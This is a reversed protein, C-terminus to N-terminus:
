WVVQFLSMNSHVSLVYVLYQTGIIFSGIELIDLQHDAPVKVSMYEKEDAKAPNSHSSMCLQNPLGLDFGEPLRLMHLWCWQVNYSYSWVGGKASGPRPWLMCEQSYERPPSGAHSHNQWINWSFAWSNVSPKKEIGTSSIFMGEETSVLCGIDVANSYISIFRDRWKSPLDSSFLFNTMDLYWFLAQTYGIIM